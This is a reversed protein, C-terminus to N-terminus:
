NKSQEKPKKKSIKYEIGIRMNLRDTYPSKYHPNFLNYLLQANGQLSKSIKYEKKIGAMASWIWERTAFDQLPPVRVSTNMVEAEMQASFGGAIQYSVYARPGFIRMSPNFKGVDFNYAWRYNLGLGTTLKGTLRYGVYPNVDVWVDNRRQFQLTIGPVLRECLPKGHMPNPVKKPLDKLSSVNAYKKKLESMQQMAGQLQDQKGAFHDIAKEKAEEVLLEKAEVENTPLVPTGGLELKEKVQEGAKEEVQKVVEDVTVAQPLEAQVGAVKEKIGSLEDSLDLNNLEGSFPNNMVPLTVGPVTNLNLAPLNFEQVPLSIDLQDLESTYRDIERAVEQPLELQQLSERTKQKMSDAKQKILELKGDKIRQVSDLEIVWQELPEGLSNLSDIKNQLHMTKSRYHQDVADYQQKIRNLEVETGQRISDIKQLSKYNVSDLKPSAVLISDVAQGKSLM